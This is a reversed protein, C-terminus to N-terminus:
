SSPQDVTGIKRLHKAIANPTLCFKKNTKPSVWRKGLEVNIAPGILPAIANCSRRRKEPHDVLYSDRAAEIIADVERRDPKAGRAKEARELEIARIPALAHARATETTIGFVGILFVCELMKELAAYANDVPGVELNSVFEDFAPRLNRAASELQEADNRIALEPSSSLCGRALSRFRDVVGSAQTYNGTRWSIARAKASDDPASNEGM